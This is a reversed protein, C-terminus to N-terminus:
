PCQYNVDFIAMMDLCVPLAIEVRTSLDVREVRYGAM